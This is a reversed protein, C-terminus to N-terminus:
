RGPRFGDGRGIALNRVQRSFARLNHTKELYHLMDRMREARLREMQYYDDDDEEFRPLSIGHCLVNFLSFICILILFKKCNTTFKVM